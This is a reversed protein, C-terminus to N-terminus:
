PSPPAPWRSSTRQEVGDDTRVLLLVALEQSEAVALGQEPGLVNIATAWADAAACDAHLVSVSALGHDIPRGTRPDLTHSTREGDRELYNRYDGSTALSIRELPLTTFGQRTSPDPAEIAIQWPLGPAKADGLRVEGGIEVMHAPHGLEDLALAVQDVAFGKAIASLDAYVDPRTKTLTGPGPVLLEYGVREFAVALQADDPQETIGDPGFGWLNVLPGVTVDFAGESAVSIQHALEFVQLADASLEVPETSTSANFRSLESADNWTSMADDVAQLEDGIRAQVREIEPDSLEGVVKIHFETGFIPGEFSTVAPGPAPEPPAKAEQGRKLWVATVAVLFLGPVISRKLLAGSTVPARPPPAM